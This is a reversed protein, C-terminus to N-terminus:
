TRAEGIAERLDGRCTLLARRVDPNYSGWVMLAVNIAGEVDRLAESMADKAAKEPAVPYSSLERNMCDPCYDRPSEFHLGEAHADSMERAEHRYVVTRM